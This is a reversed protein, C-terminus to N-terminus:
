DQLVEELADSLSWIPESSRLMDTVLPVGAAALGNAIKMIKHPERVVAVDGAVAIAVLMLFQIRWGDRDFVTGDVFESTKLGSLEVPPLQKRAALSLGTFWLDVMRPFPCRDIASRQSKTHCYMRYDDGQDVPRVLAVTSFPNHLRPPM